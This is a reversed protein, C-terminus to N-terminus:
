LSEPHYFEDSIGDADESLFWFWLLFLFLFLFVLFSGSLWGVTMLVVSVGEFDEVFFM